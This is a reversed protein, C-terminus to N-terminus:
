TLAEEPKGEQELVEALGRQADAVVCTIKLEQGLKLAELYHPRAKVADGARQAGLRSQEM